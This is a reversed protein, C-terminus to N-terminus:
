FRVFAEGCVHPKSSVPSGPLVGNSAEGCVHPKSAAEARQRM